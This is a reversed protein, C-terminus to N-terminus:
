CKRHRQDTSRPGRLDRCGSTGGGGGGLGRDKQSTFCYGAGRGRPGRRRGRRRGQGMPSVMPVSRCLPFEGAPDACHWHLQASPPEASPGICAGGPLPWPRDAARAPPRRPQWALQVASISVVSYAHTRQVMGCTVAVLTDLRGTGSGGRDCSPRRIQFFGGARRPEEKRAPGTCTTQAHDTRM